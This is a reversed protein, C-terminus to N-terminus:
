NGFEQKPSSTWMWIGLITVAAGIAIILWGVPNLSTYTPITVGTGPIIETHGTVIWQGGVWNGMIILIVGIITVKVGKFQSM